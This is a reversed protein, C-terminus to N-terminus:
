RSATSPAGAPRAPPDVSLFDEVLALQSAAGAEWRRLNAKVFSERLRNTEYKRRAHAAAPHDQLVLKFFVLLRFWPQPDAPAAAASRFLSAVVGSLPGRVARPVHSLPARTSALVQDVLSATLLAAPPPAAAAVVAPVFPLPLDAQCCLRQPSTRAPHGPPTLGVPCPEAPAVPAPPRGRRTHARRPPPRRPRLRRWPGLRPCWSAPRGGPPSGPARLMLRSSALAVLPRPVSSVVILHQYGPKGAVE